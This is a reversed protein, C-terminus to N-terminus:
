RPWEAREAETVPDGTMLRAGVATAIRPTAGAGALALPARRALGALEARLPELTQPRTAALVALDPCSIDAARALEGPPTDAGLYDIRWGNRHLVIGFMM